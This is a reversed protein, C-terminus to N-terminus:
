KKTKIDYFRVIEDKCPKWDIRKNMGVLDVQGWMFLWPAEDKVIRQLKNYIEKRKEPSITSGGEEIMKDTEPTYWYAQVGDKHMLYPYLGEADFISYSGWTGMHMPTAKGARILQGYTPWTDYWKPTTKINLNKQLYGMTAEMVQRANFFRGGYGYFTCEFGNAYGAEAMLKKAREPDYPYPKVTPDCGLTMNNLATATRDGYGLMTHKIISDMDVAYNAAQRVRKDMFPTKEGKGVADFAVYAVRLSPASAVMTHASKEIAAVQDPLLDFIIDSGGSLLEAIRTSDDPVTKLIVTKISPAGRWYNENAEYEIYQGTVWKIFKYPGTGIPNKAFYENGKELIYRPPLMVFNQLREYVLPYPKHTILRVKYPNVIQVEKVWDINKIIPSKMKPDLCREISFKVSEADFPEGNHFKVGEKLTLEWTTPNISKISTALLPEIDLTVQNRHLLSDSLAHNCWIEVRGSAISPDLNDPQSRASLVVKGTPKADVYPCM